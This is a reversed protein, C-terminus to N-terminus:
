EPIYTSPVSGRTRWSYWFASTTLVEAKTDGDHKGVSAFFMNIVKTKEQDDNTSKGEYVVSGLKNHVYEEDDSYRGVQGLPIQQSSCRLHVLWIGDDDTPLGSLLWGGSLKQLVVVSENVHVIKKSSSCGSDISCSSIM